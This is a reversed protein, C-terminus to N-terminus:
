LGKLAGEVDPSLDFVRFLRTIEFISRVEQQLSALKLQGGNEKLQRMLSILVGLGTSDIFAVERLDLILKTKGSALIGQLKKKLPPSHEADMDGFLRLISIDGRDEQEIKM